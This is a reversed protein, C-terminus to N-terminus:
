VNSHKVTNFFDRLKKRGSLTLLLNGFEEKLMKYESKDIDLALLVLDRFVCEKELGCCYGLNGYCTLKVINEIKGEKVEKIASELKKLMYEYMTGTGREAKEIAEKIAKEKEAKIDEYVEELVKLVKEKKDRKSAM